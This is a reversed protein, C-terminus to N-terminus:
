RTPLILLRTSLDPKLLAKIPRIKIGMIPFAVLCTVATTTATRSLISRAILTATPELMRIERRTVGHRTM